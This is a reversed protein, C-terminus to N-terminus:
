PTSTDNMLEEYVSDEAAYAKESQRRGAADNEAAGWQLVIQIQEGLPLQAAIGLPVTIKGNPALRCRFDATKM